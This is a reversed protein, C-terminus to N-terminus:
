RPDGTSTPSSRYLLWWGVLGFSSWTIWGGILPELHGDALALISVITIALWAGWYFVLFEVPVPREKPNATASNRNM